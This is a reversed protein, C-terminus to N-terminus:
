LTRSSLFLFRWHGQYDKEFWYDNQSFEKALLEALAEKQDFGIEFAVLFDQKLHQKMTTLIQQYFYLGHQEAFLALDPEHQLNQKEYTNSDRDIYPPNSILVDFQQAQLNAFLDSAVLQVNKIDHLVFNSQAVQLAKTSVDSATLKWHPQAVALSTAICGSGTGLDLVNLVQDGFLQRVYGLTKEVLLETAPRPILVHQDVLIKQGRFFVHGLLYGLPVGNAYQQVLELYQQAFHEDYQMSNFNHYLWALDQALLHALIEKNVSDQQNISKATALLQYIQPM